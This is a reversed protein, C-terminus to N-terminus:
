RGWGGGFSNTFGPTNGTFPINVTPINVNPINPVGGGGNRNQWQNYLGLGASALGLANGIPNSYLPTSTQSGGGNVGQFLMGLAQGQRTIPEQVAAVNRDIGQQNLNQFLTGYQGLADIGQQGAGFLNTMANNAFQGQQNAGFSGQTALFQGAQNGAGFLTNANNQGYGALFQGAGLGSNFLANSGQMGAAGLNNLGQGYLALRQATAADGSGAQQGLAGLGQGFLGQGTNARFQQQQMARNMADSYGQQTIGALQATENRAIDALAAGRTVAERSGGFAGAATARDSIDRNTRNRVSDFQTQVADLVNSQFPNIFASVDPMGGLAGSVAEFGTQAATGGLAGIRGQAADGAAARGDLSNVANTNLLGRSAALYPDLQGAMAQQGGAGQGFLGNAQAMTSLGGYGAGVGANLFNQAGGTQGLMGFQQALGGQGARQQLGFYDNAMGANGAQAMLGQAAPGFLGAQQQAMAAGQQQLPDLGATRNGTFFPSNLTTDYAGTAAARARRLYEQTELDSMTTVTNMRGGNSRMFDSVQM